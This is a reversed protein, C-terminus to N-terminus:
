YKRSGIVDKAVSQDYVGEKVMIRKVFMNDLNDLLLQKAEPRIFEATSVTGRVRRAAVVAEALDFV